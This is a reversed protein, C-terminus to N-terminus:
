DLGFHGAQPNAWVERRVVLPGCEASRAADFCSAANYRLSSLLSSPHMGCKFPEKGSNMKLHVFPYYLKGFASKAPYYFWSRAPFM